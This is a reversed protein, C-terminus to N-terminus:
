PNCKKCPDYGMSIIDERTATVEQKNSDKMQKISSCSPRHFKKTNTNLVYQESTPTAVEATISDPESVEEAPQETATEEVKETNEPVTGDEVSYGTAYDIVIGPQVNYCYTCFTIGEGNDEVSYAEMLIGSAVLNEGEFIPTVRYLVHNQTEKVYDAVLNEFPLMGDVNLYRTGTILNKENANEGALQFGILHCRNYLYKGDVCDYKVTHWGTPKVSGISGREETPMIEVCINAYAVGCRGLSDLDSYTEFADTTYDTESFFPVNNNIAVYPTGSYEPIDNLSIENEEIKQQEEDEPQDPEQQNSEPEQTEEEPQAVAEQQSEQVTDTSKDASCGNVMLTMAMTLVLILSRLKKM